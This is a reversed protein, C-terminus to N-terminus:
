FVISFEICLDYLILVSFLISHRAIMLDSTVKLLNIKVYHTFASTLNFPKLPPMFTLPFTVFM